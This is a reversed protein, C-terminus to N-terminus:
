CASPRPNSDQAPLNGSKKRDPYKSHPLRNINDLNLQLVRPQFFTGMVMPWVFFDSHIISWFLVNANDIKGYLNTWFKIGWQVFYSSEHGKGGKVM